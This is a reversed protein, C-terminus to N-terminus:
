LIEIPKSSYKTTSFLLTKKYYIDVPINLNIWKDPFTVIKNDNINLYSGWWSFTSNSCIGGKYCKSMFYLTELPNKNTYFDKNISKFIEYKKCFSIDDSIIYFHTDKDISLIYEIVNKFYIDLNIFHLQKQIYDGRRIHIFYSNNKEINEYIPNDTLLKIIENKYEKFYKENQFYGKFITNNKIDINSIYSFVKESPENFIHKIDEKHKNFHKFISDYYQINKSNHYNRLLPIIFYNLNYKKALAYIFVIQFIQNGLGGITEVSITYM